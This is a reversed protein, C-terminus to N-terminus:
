AFCKAKFQPPIIINFAFFNNMRKEQKATKHVAKVPPQIESVWSDWLKKAIGLASAALKSRINLSSNWYRRSWIFLSKTQNAPSATYLWTYSKMYREELSMSLFEQSYWSCTVLVMRLVMGKPLILNKICLVM